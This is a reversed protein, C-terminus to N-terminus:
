GGVLAASGKAGEELLLTRPVEGRGRPTGLRLRLEPTALLMPELSERAVRQAMTLTPLGLLCPGPAPHLYYGITNLVVGETFGLRAAKMVVLRQIPSGESLCDL